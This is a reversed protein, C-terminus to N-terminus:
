DGRRVAVDPIQRDQWFVAPASVDVIEEPEDGSKMGRGSSVPDSGGRIGHVRRHSCRELPGAVLAGLCSDVELASVGESGVQGVCDRQPARMVIVPCRCDRQPRRPPRQTRAHTVERRSLGVQSPSGSTRVRILSAWNSGQPAYPPTKAGKSSAGVSSGTPAGRAAFVTSGLALSLARPPRHMEARRWPGKRPRVSTRRPYHRSRSSM